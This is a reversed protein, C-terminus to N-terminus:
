AIFVLKWGYVRRLTGTSMAPLSPPPNIPLLAPVLSCASGAEFGEPRYDPPVPYLVHFRRLIDLYLALKTASEGKWLFAANKHQLFGNKAFNDQSRHM